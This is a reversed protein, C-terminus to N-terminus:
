CASPTKISYSNSRRRKKTIQWSRGAPFILGRIVCSGFGITATSHLPHLVVQGVAKSAKIQSAHSDLQSIPAM